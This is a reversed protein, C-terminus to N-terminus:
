EDTSVEKRVITVEVRPGQRDPDTVPVAAGVAIPTQRAAPVGNGELLRAAGELALRSQEMAAEPGGVSAPAFGVVYVRAEPYRQVVSNIDEGTDADLNLRPVRGPEFPIIFPGLTQRERPASGPLRYDEPAQLHQELVSITRNGRRVIYVSLLRLRNQDDRWAGVLYAQEGDRGYLRSEGFVRNAWTASRGCARGECDFLIRADRARLQERYHELVAEPSYRSPVELLREVGTGPVSLADAYRLRDRVESVQSTIVRSEEGPNEIGQSDVVQSEPFGLDDADIDAVAELPELMFLLFLFLASPLGLLFRLGGQGFRGRPMTIATPLATNIM